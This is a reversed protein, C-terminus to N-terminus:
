SGGPFDVSLLRDDLGLADAAGRRPHHGVVEADGHGGDPQPSNRGLSMSVVFIQNDTFIEVADFEHSGDQLVESLLSKASHIMRGSRRYLRSGTLRQAM